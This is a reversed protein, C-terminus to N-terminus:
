KTFNVTLDTATHLIEKRFFVDVPERGVSGDLRVFQGREKPHFLRKDKGKHNTLGDCAITTLPDDRTSVGRYWAYTVNFKPGTNSLSVGKQAREGFENDPCLFMKSDDLYQTRLLEFDECCNTKSAWESTKPDPVSRACPFRGDNSLSYQHCAKYIQQLYCACVLERDLEKPHLVYEEYLTWALFLICTCVIVIILEVLTFFICKRKMTHREREMGRETM